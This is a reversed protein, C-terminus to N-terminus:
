RGFFVTAEGHRNVYASLDSTRIREREDDMYHSRQASSAAHREDASRRAEAYGPVDAFGPNSYAPVWSGRVHIQDEDSAEFYLTNHGLKGGLHRVGAPVLVPRAQSGCEGGLSFDSRALLFGAREYPYDYVHTILGGAQTYATLWEIYRSLPLPEFAEANPTM